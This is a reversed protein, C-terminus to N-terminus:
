MTSPLCYTAAISEVLRILKASGTLKIYLLLPGKRRLVGESVLKNVIGEPTSKRSIEIYDNARAHGVTAHLENYFWLGFGGAIVVPAIVGALLLRKKLTRTM